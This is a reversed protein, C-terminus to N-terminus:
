RFNYPCARPSSRHGMPLTPVHTKRVKRELSKIFRVAENLIKLHDQTTSSPLIQGLERYAKNQERIHIKMSCKSDKTSMKNKMKETLDVDKLLINFRKSVQSLKNFHCYCLKEFIHVLLEDPLDSILDPAKSSHNDAM